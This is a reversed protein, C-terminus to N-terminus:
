REPPQPPLETLPLRTPYRESLWTPEAVDTAVANSDREAPPHQHAPAHDYAVALNVHAFHSPETTACFFLDAVYLRAQM